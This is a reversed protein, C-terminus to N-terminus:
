CGNLANNVATILENMEIEGDGNIDASVCSLAAEGLAVNVLQILESITVEADGNCDGVCIELPTDTPAPTSPTDTVGPSATVTTNVSPTPTLLPAPTDTVSIVQVKQSINSAADYTYTNSELFTDNRDSRTSSVLRMLGDYGYTMSFNSATSDDLDSASTEAVLNNFQDYTYTTGLILNAAGNV